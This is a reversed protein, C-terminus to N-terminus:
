AQAAKKGQVPRRLIQSAIRRAFEGSQAKLKQAAESTKNRLDERGEAILKEVESRRSAVIEGKQSLAQNRLQAMYADTERRAERMKRDVDALRDKSAKRIEEAERQAGEIRRSREALTQQLPNFFVRKLLFLFILLLTVVPIVTWNPFIDM